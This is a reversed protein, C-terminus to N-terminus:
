VAVGVHVSQVEAGEARRVAGGVADEVGVAAPEHVCQVEALEALPEPRADSAPFRLPPLTSPPPSERAEPGPTAASTAFPRHRRNMVRSAGSRGEPTVM